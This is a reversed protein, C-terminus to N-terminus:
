ASVKVAPPVFSVVARPGNFGLEPRFPSAPDALVMRPAAPQPDLRVPAGEPGAVMWARAIGNWWPAPTAPRTEVAVPKGGEVTVLLGAGPEVPFIATRM